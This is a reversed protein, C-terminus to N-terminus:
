FASKASNASEADAKAIALADEAHKRDTIDLTYQIIQVVNGTRDFVPYAHVEVHRANGDRDYHLHEVTVPHKSHKVEAIPCPHEPSQCPTEQHHTLAYCTPHDFLNGLKAASNAMTVTYDRADIVYFPHTLAELTNELFAHQQRITEEALKREVIEQELARTREIVQQELTTYLRANELAIATQSALLTLVEVRGSSFADPTL